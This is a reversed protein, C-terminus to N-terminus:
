KRFSCHLCLGTSNNKRSTNRLWCQVLLCLPTLQVFFFNSAYFQFKKDFIEIWCGFVGGLFCCRHTVHKGIKWCINRIKIYPIYLFVKLVVHLYSVRQPSPSHWFNNQGSTKTLMVLNILCVKLNIDHSTYVVRIFFVFCVKILKIM